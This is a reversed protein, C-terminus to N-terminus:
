FFCFCFFGAQSLSSALGFFIQFLHAISLFIRLFHSLCLSIFLFFHLFIALFTWACVEKHRSGQATVELTMILILTVNLLKNYGRNKCYFQESLSMTASFFIYGRYLPVDSM